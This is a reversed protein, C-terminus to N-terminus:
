IFQCVALCRLSLRLFLHMEIKIQIGKEKGHVRVLSRAKVSPFSCSRQFPALSNIKVSGFRENRHSVFLFKLKWNTFLRTQTLFRHRYFSGKNRQTIGQQVLACRKVPAQIGHPYLSKETCWLWLRVAPKVDPTEPVGTIARPMHITSSALDLGYPPHPSWEQLTCTTNTSVTRVITWLCLRRKQVNSM